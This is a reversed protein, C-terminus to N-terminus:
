KNRHRHLPPCAISTTASAQSGGQFMFTAAFPFGGRPCHESIGTPHFPRRRGHVNMYYILREPGITAQVSTVSVDPGNPVSPIPPVLAVLQLGFPNLDPAIEGKFIIQAYIPSEGNAYFLVVMHGNSTQPGRLAQVEPLEHGSSDGFPVEVTASGFGLRSNPSCGKLGKELLAQPQCIALGLTTRIYNLGAPMRLDVGELPPPALGTATSLNFGFGITTSSGLKDPSFSAHLTAIEAASAAGHGVTAAPATKGHVLGLFLLALISM